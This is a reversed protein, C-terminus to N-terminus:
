FSTDEPSRLYRVEPHDQRRADALFSKGVLEECFNMLDAGGPEHQMAEYSRCQLFLIDNHWHFLFFGSVDYVDSSSSLFILREIRAGRM